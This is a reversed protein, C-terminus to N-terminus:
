FSFIKILIPSYNALKALIMKLFNPVVKQRKRMIKERNKDNNASKKLDDKESSKGSLFFFGKERQKQSFTVSVL